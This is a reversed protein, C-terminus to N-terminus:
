RSVCRSALFLCHLVRRCTCTPFVSTAHIHAHLPCGLVVHMNTKCHALRTTTCPLHALLGDLRVNEVKFALACSLFFFLFVLFCVPEPCFSSFLLFVVLFSSFFVVHLSVGICLFSFLLCM